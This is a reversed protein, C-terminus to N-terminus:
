CKATNENAREELLGEHPAPVPTLILPSLILFTPVVCAAGRAEPARLGYTVCFTHWLKRRFFDADLGNVLSLFVNENTLELVWMVELRARYSLANEPRLSAFGATFTRTARGLLERHHIPIFGRQRRDAM